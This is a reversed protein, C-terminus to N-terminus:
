RLNNSINFGAPDQLLGPFQEEEDESHIIISPKVLILLTRQDKVLSSNTFLRQFVPIKSLVPVGSEIEVEGVLRQGGILLTGQDPISVTTRVSTIELEPLQVSAGFTINDGGGNNNNNNNVLVGTVPFERLAILTALSPRLTLTVYRRDASITGEVDLIVGSQSVSVTVDFGIADPIPELDSIFARQSAVLVYSRQGNFLTIRPATLTLSRQNAQTAQVLLNVELDELFSISFDM